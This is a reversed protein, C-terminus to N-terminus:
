TRWIRPNVAARGLLAPRLVHWLRVFYDQGAESRDGLYRALLVGPLRTVAGIGVAPAVARCATVLTADIKAAVAILTGTVPHGALGIPSTLLRSGGEIVGREIWLPHGARAIRVNMTMRGHDYREGSATRGLCVLEWGLYRGATDVEIVTDARGVSRDFLIGPQPLWELTADAGISFCLSQRAEAGTSRYWKTAGPTTLLVASGPDLKADLHLADGGVLGGPPHLVIGHCVREGEPYLPKQVVIPGAHRRAALVTREARREYRLALEGRWGGAHVDNKRERARDYQWAIAYAM